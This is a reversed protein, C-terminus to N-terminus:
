ADEEAQRAARIASDRMSPTTYVDSFQPQFPDTAEITAGHHTRMPPFLPSAQLQPAFPNDPRPPPVSSAFSSDPVAFSQRRIQASHPPATHQPRHSNARGVPPHIPAGRAPAPPYARASSSRFSATDFSSSPFDSQDYRGAGSYGERRDRVYDRQGRITQDTLASSAVSSGVYGTNRPSYGYQDQGSARLLEPSVSLDVPESVYSGQTYTPGQVDYQSEKSVASETEDSDSEYESTSVTHNPARRSSRIGTSHQEWSRSARQDTRRLRDEAPRDEMYRQQRAAEIPDNDYSQTRGTGPRIGDRQIVDYAYDTTEVIDVDDPAHASERRWEVIRNADSVSLYPFCSM